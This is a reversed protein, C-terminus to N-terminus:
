GARQCVPCWFTSRQGMVSRCLATGCVRCPQGHLGYVFYQQQFYGPQGDSGIFDRLTSGGADIADLLTQRVASVLRECRGPGLRGAQTTPRIGARFLSESAYINGVGVVRRGDMLALKIPTKVGRTSRYWDAPNFADELPEVGLRALLPHTLVDGAQWLWQGFRRPDRYRLCRDGMILDIHDHRGPPEGPAVIRLSGSMGLHVILSGTEFDLLLYKARRRVDRLVEGRFFDGINEPVGHRLRGNRVVCGGVTQGVLPERIGRRTTEVEPLEPM